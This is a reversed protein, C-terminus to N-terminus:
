DAHLVFPAVPVRFHDEHRDHAAVTDGTKAYPTEPPVRAMYFYGEMVGETTTLPTGSMYEFCQGPRLVPLHGVAHVFM